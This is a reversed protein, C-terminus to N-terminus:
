PIVPVSHLQCERCQAKSFHLCWNVLSITNRGFRLHAVSVHHCMKLVRLVTFSLVADKIANYGVGLTNIINKVNPQGHM